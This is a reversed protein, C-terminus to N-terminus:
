LLFWPVVDCKMTEGNKLDVQMYVLGFKHNVRYTIKTAVEDSAPLPQEVKSTKILYFGLPWEDVGTKETITRVLTDGNVTNISYQTGVGDAYKAVTWPKDSTFYDQMGESTIKFKMDTNIRGQADKYQAPILAAIFASDPSGTLDLVVNYTVVGEINSKVTMTGTPLNYTGISIYVSSEKGVETLTINTEGGLENPGETKEKECSILHMAIAIALTVVLTRKM